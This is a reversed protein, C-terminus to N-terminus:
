VFFNTFRRPLFMLQVFSLMLEIRSLLCLLFIILHVCYSVQHVLSTYLAAPLNTLLLLMFVAWVKKEGNRTEISNGKLRNVGSTMRAWFGPAAHLPIHEILVLFCAITHSLLM